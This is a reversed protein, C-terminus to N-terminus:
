PLQLLLESDVLSVGVQLSRLQSEMQTRAIVVCTFEHEKCLKTDMMCQM